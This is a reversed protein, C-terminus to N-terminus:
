RNMREHVNPNNGGRAMTCLAPTFVPTCFDTGSVCTDTRATKKRERYVIGQVIDLADFSRVVELSLTLLFFQPM